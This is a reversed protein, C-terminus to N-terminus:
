IYGRKEYEDMEFSVLMFHYENDKIRYIWCKM